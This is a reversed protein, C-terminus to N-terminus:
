KYRPPRSLLLRVALDGSNVAAHLPTNGEKDRGGEWCDDINVYQFGHAALGSKAMYDAAPATGMVARFVAARATPPIPKM